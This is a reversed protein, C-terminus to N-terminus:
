RASVAEIKCYFLPWTKKHQTENHKVNKDKMAKIQRENHRVNDKMLGICQATLSPVQYTFIYRVEHRTTKYCLVQIKKLPSLLCKLM